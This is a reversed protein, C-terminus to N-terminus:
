TSQHPYLSSLLRFGASTNAKKQLYV